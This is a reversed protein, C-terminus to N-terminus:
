HEAFVLPDPGVRGPEKLADLVSRQTDDLSFDFVDFNSRLRRGNGSKPIVVHGQDLHWRLVTQAPTRGTQRALALVEARDLLASGRGLPSWAETIIGLAAHRSRLATQPYGPHLEIQNVAPVLDSNDALRDLHEITFNCVGVARARGSRYIQELARWTDLYRDRAPVPWHILYLDIVPLGLLELSRDFAQLASDYGQDSNALKTTVFLSAPDLGCDRIAGGIEAENGYSRATDILRYGTHVASLVVEYADPVRFMGCGLQPMLVGNNLTVTPIAPVTM